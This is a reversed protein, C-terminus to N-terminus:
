HSAPAHTPDRTGVRSHAGVNARFTVLRLPFWLVAASILGPSYSCTLVTGLFYPVSNILVITALAVVVWASAASRLVWVVAVAMALWLIVNAALFGKTSAAFGSFEAVWEPFGGWFEEAIHVIYSVPFLLCWTGIFSAAQSHRGQM